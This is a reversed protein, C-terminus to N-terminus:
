CSFMKFFSKKKEEEKQQRYPETTEAYYPEINKALKFFTKESCIRMMFPRTVYRRLKLFILLYSVCILPLM